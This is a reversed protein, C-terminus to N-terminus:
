VPIYSPEQAQKSRGFTVFNQHERFAQMMASLVFNKEQWKFKWRRSRTTPCRRADRSIDRFPQAFRIRFPQAFSLARRHLSGGQEQQGQGPRAGQRSGKGQEAEGSSAAAAVLVTPSPPLGRDGPGRALVRGRALLDEGPEEGPRAQGERSRRDSNGEKAKSETEKRRNCAQGSRKKQSRKIRIERENIRGAIQRQKM